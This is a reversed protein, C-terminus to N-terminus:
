DFKELVYGKAYINKINLQFKRKLNGVLNQIIVRNTTNNEYVFTELMEFTVLKGLNQSLLILLKHLMPTLFIENKNLFIRQKEIDIELNKTLNVLNLSSKAQNLILLSINDIIASFKIPKFLVASNGGNFKNLFKLYIQRKSALFLFQQSSKFSLINDLDTNLFIDLDIVIIDIALNINLYTNIFNQENLIYLNKFKDRNKRTKEILNKDNTVFFANLYKFNM